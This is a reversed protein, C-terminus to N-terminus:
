GNLPLMQENDIIYDGCTGGDKGAGFFQAPGAIDFDADNGESEGLTLLRIFVRVLSLHDRFLSM